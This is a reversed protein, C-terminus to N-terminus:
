SSFRAMKQMIMDIFAENEAMSHMASRLSSRTITIVQQQDAPRQVMHGHSGGNMAHHSGMDPMPEQMGPPFRQQQQMQPQSPPPLAPMSAHPAAGPAKAETPAAPPPTPPPPNAPGAAGPDNRLRELVKTLAAEVKKREADDHFWLGRIRKSPDEVKYFVYCHQCDLEWSPHVADVLCNTGCRRKVLLQYMPAAQRKVLYVPGEIHTKRWGPGEGGQQLLYLVAFESHVVIGEIQNDVEKLSDLMAKEDTAAM